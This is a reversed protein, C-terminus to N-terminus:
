KILNKVIDKEAGLYTLHYAWQSEPGTVCTVSGFRPGALSNSIEPLTFFM